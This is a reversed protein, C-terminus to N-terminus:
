YVNYWKGRKLVMSQLFRILCTKSYCGKKNCLFVERHIVCLSPDWHSHSIRDHDYIKRKNELTRKENPKLGYFLGAIDVDLGRANTSVADQKVRM